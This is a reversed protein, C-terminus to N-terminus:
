IYMIKYVFFKRNCALTVFVDFRLSLSIRNLNQKNGFRVFVNLM